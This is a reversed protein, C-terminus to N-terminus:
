DVRWLMRPRSNGKTDAALIWAMHLYHFGGNTKQPTCIDSAAVQFASNATAEAQRSLTSHCM